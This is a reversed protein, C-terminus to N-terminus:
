RTIRGVEALLGAAGNMAAYRGRRACYTVYRRLFIRLLSAEAPEIGPPVARQPQMRLGPDRFEVPRDKAIAGGRRFPDFGAPAAERREPEGDVEWEAYRTRIDALTACYRARRWQGTLADRFRFAYLTPM